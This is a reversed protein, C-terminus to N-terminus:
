AQSIFKVWRRRLRRLHRRRMDFEYGYTLLILVVQALYRAPHMWKQSFDLRGICYWVAWAAPVFLLLTSVLAALLLRNRVIAAKTLMKIAKPIGTMALIRGLLRNVWTAINAIWTM